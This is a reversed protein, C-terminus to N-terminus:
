IDSGSRVEYHSLPLALKELFPATVLFKLNLVKKKKKILLMTKKKSLYSM